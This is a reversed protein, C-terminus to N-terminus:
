KDEKNNNDKKNEEIKKEDELKSNDEKNKNEKKKVKQKNDAITTEDKVKEAEKASIEKATNEEKNNKVSIDKQRKLMYICIGVLVLIIMIAIIVLKKDFKSAKVAKLDGIKLLSDEINTQIENHESDYLTINKISIESDKFKKVDKVRFKIYVATDERNKDNSYILFRPLEESIASETNNSEEANSAEQNSADQNNADQNDSETNAEGLSLNGISWGTGLEIKASKTDEELPILEVADKDYFLYGFIAMIKGYEEGDATVSVSIEDGAKLNKNVDCGMNLKAAESKQTFLAMGLILLISFFTIKLTKKM